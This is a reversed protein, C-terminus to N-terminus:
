QAHTDVLVFTEPTATILVKQGHQVSCNDANNYDKNETTEKM